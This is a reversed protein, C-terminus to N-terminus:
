PCTPISSSSLYDSQKIPRPTSLPQSVLKSFASWEAAAWIETTTHTMTRIITAVKIATEIDPATFIDLYDAPGLIAYSQQWLVDPCNHRIREMVDYSHASVQQASIHAGHGLRTLMVFTAM